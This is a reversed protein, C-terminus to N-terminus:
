STVSAAAGIDGHGKHVLRRTVWLELLLLGVFAWLLFAWLESRSEDGYMKKALAGTSDVFTMREDISLRGRDDQSLEDIAGESRDYNVVFTDLTQAEDDTGTLLRYSGPLITKPLTATVSENALTVKASDQTGFPGQFSLEPAVNSNADFEVITQLPDGFNVNRVIKSSAMQFVAEFLFPVYDPRTPLNNWATDLTSTYLLVSGEGCEIQMLLPDGTSLKALIMPVSQEPESDALEGNTEDKTPRIM